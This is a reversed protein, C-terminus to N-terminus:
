RVRAALLEADATLVAKTNEAMRASAWGMTTGMIISWSAQRLFGGGHRLEHFDSGTFM